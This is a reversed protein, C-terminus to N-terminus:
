MEGCYFSWGSGASWDWSLGCIAGTPGGFERVVKTLVDDTFYLHTNRYGVPMVLPVPIFGIIVFPGSWALERRYVWIEDQGEHRTREPSGWAGLADDKEISPQEPDIHIYGPKNTLEWSTAEETVTQEHILAVGVCGSLVVLYCLAALIRICSKLTM